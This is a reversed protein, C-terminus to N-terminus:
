RARQFARGAETAATDKTFLDSSPSVPDAGLGFWAYRHLWPLADLAKTAATVFAAQQAASPFRTGHSFDIM